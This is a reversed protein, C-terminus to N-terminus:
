FRVSGRCFEFGAQVLGVWESSFRGLASGFGLRFWGLEPLVSGVWPLVWVWGSAVRGAGGWQSGVWELGTPVLWGLRFWGVGNLVSGVWPLVWVWGSGVRGVAVWESGIWELGAQVLGAWESGFRGVASSLGPRFWGLGNLVSGVWPLVLVRGSAVRGARGWESGVRELGTPVSGSWGARLEPWTPGM